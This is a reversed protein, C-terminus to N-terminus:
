FTFDIEKISYNSILSCHPVVPTLFGSMLSVGTRSLLCVPLLILTKEIIIIIISKYIILRVILSPM